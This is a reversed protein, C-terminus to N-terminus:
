EPPPGSGSLGSLEFAEKENDGWFVRYKGWTDTTRIDKVTIDFIEWKRSDENWRNRVLEQGKFIISGDRLV